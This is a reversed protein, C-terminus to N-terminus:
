VQKSEGVLMGVTSGTVDSRSRAMHKPAIGNAVVGTLVVDLHQELRQRARTEFLVPPTDKPPAVETYGTIPYVWSLEKLRRAFVYMPSIYRLLYAICFNM